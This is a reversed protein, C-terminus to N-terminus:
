GGIEIILQDGIRRSPYTHLAHDAPGELVNGAYDFHSRGSLCQLRSKEPLFDLPKGNHTCQDTFARYANRDTRLLFIKLASEENKGLVLRAAGGVQQLPAGRSLEVIIRTGEHRYSGLPVYPVPVGPESQSCGSLGLAGVCAYLTKAASVKLFDRRNIM